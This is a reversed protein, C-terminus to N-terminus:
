LDSTIFFVNQAGEWLLTNAKQVYFLLEAVHLTLANKGGVTM